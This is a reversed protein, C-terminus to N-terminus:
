FIQQKGAGHDYLAIEESGIVALVNAGAIPKLGAKLEANVIFVPIGNVHTGDQHVIPNSLTIMEENGSPSDSYILM